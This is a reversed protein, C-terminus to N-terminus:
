LELAPAALIGSVWLGGGNTAISLPALAYIRNNFGRIKLTSPASSNIGAFYYFNWSAGLDFSYGVGHQEYAPASANLVNSVTKVIAPGACALTSQGGLFGNATSASGSIQTWTQGTPSTYIAGTSDWGVFLALARSYTINGLTGSLNKALTWSVGNNNTWFISYFANADHKFCVCVNSGGSSSDDAFDAPDSQVTSVGPLVVGVGTFGSVTASHLVGGTTLAYYHGNLAYHVAYNTAAGASYQTWTTGHDTSYNCQPSGQCMLIVGPAGAAAHTLSQFASGALPTFGDFLSGDNSRAMGTKNTNLPDSGFLVIPRQREGSTDFSRVSRLAIMQSASLSGGSGPLSTYRWSQLASHAQVALMDAKLSELYALAEPYVPTNPLTGVSLDSDSIVVQKPQNSWPDTGAPYNGQAFLYPRRLSRM